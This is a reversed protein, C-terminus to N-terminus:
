ERTIMEDLNLLVRCVSTWAARERRMSEDPCTEKSVLADATAPDAAMTKRESDLVESLISAESGSPGRSMCLRFAHALRSADDNMPAALVRGAM